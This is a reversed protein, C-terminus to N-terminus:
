ADVTSNQLNDLMAVRKEIEQYLDRGKNVLCIAIGIIYDKDTDSINPEDYFQFFKDCAFGQNYIRYPACEIIIHKDEAKYSFSGICYDGHKINYKTLTQHVYMDFPYDKLLKEISRMYAKIHLVAKKYLEDKNM